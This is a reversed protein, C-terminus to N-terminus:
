CCLEFQGNGCDCIVCYALGKTETSPPVCSIDCDSAVAAAGLAQPIASGTQSLRNITGILRSDSTQVLKISQPHGVKALAAVQSDKKLTRFDITLHLEFDRDKASLTPLVIEQTGPVASISGQLTGNHFVAIKPEATTGSAELASKVQDSSFGFEVPIRLM